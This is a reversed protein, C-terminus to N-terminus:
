EQGPWGSRERRDRRRRWAESMVVYVAVAVASGWRDARLQLVYLVVGICAALTAALVVVRLTRQWDGIVM